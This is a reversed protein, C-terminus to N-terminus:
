KKIKELSSPDFGDAGPDELTEMGGMAGMSGLLGFLDFEEAGAPEKVMVVKGFNFSVFDISASGKGVSKGEDGILKDLKFNLKMQNLIQTDMTIWYDIDVFVNAFSENFDQKEQATMETGQEALYKELEAKVKARDVQATYRYSKLGRITDVGKYSIGTLYTAADKMVKQVQAADYPKGSIEGPLTEPLPIKWWKGIYQGIMEQPIEKGSLKQLVVFINKQDGRLEAGFDYKDQNMILSANMLNNFNFMKKELDSSSDGTVKMDFRISQVKGTEDKGNLHLNMKMESEHSPSLMLNSAGAQLM